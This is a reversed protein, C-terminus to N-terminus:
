PTAEKAALTANFTFQAGTPAGDKVFVNYFYQTFDTAANENAGGNTFDFTYTIKVKIEETGAAFEVPVTVIYLSDGTSETVGSESMTGVQAKASLFSNTEAFINQAGSNPFNTDYGLKVTLTANGVYGGSTLTYTASMTGRYSFTAVNNEGVSTFGQSSYRPATLTPASCSLVSEASVTGSVEASVGGAPGQSITWSAFGMGIMACCSFLAVISLKARTTM